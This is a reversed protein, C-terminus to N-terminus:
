QYLVFGDFTLDEDYWAQGLLNTNSYSIVNELELRFSDIKRLPIVDGKERSPITGIKGAGIRDLQNLQYFMTPLLVATFSTWYEAVITANKYAVLDDVQFDPFPTFFQPMFGGGLIMEIEGGILIDNVVGAFIKDTGMGGILTAQDYSMSRNMMVDDGHNGHALLNLWGISAVISTEDDDLDDEFEINDQGEHGLVVINFAEVELPTDFEIDNERFTSREGNIHVRISNRRFTVRIEDDQNTGVVIMAGRELIVLGDPDSTAPFMDELEAAAVVSVSSAFLLGALVFRFM